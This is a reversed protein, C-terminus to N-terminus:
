GARRAAWEHALMSYVVHDVWQDHLWLEQRMIGDQHFGLREPIARSKVNGAACRIEVRHLKWAEFAHDLLASVARTMVGRGTHVQALWYGIETSRNMWNIRHFGICGALAGDVWMGAQFGDNEAYQKLGQRIFDRSDSVSYIDEPWMLWERLFYRNEDTLVYLEEAHHYDLVRLDLHEDIRHTFM